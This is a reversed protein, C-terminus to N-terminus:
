QTAIVILMCNAAEPATSSYRQPCLCNGVECVLWPINDIKGDSAMADWLTGKACLESVVAVAGKDEIVDFVTHVLPVQERIERSIDVMNYLQIKTDSTVKPWSQM